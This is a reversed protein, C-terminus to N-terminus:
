GAAFRQEAAAYIENLCTRDMLKSIQRIAKLTTGTDFQHIDAENLHIEEDTLALVDSLGFLQRVRRKSEHQNRTLLPVVTSWAHVLERCNGAPRECAGNDLPSIWFAAERNCIRNSSHNRHICECGLLAAAWDEFPGASIPSHGLGRAHRRLHLYYSLLWSLPERFMTVYVVKASQPLQSQVYGLEHGYIIRAPDLPDFRPNLDGHSYAMQMTMGAERALEQVIERFSTGGTKPLHLFVFHDIYPKDPVTAVTRAERQKLLAANKTLDAQAQKLKKASAALHQQQASAAESCEKLLRTSHQLQQSLDSNRAKVKSAATASLMSREALDKEHTVRLELERQNGLDLQHLLDSNTLWQRVHLILLVLAVGQALRGM